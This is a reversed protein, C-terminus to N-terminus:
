KEKDRGFVGFLRLRLGMRVCVSVCARVYLTMRVCLALTVCVCVCVCGECVCVCVCVCARVCAVYALNEKPSATSPPPPLLFGV